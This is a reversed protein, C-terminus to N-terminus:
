FGSKSGIVRSQISRLLLIPVWQCGATISEYGPRWSDQGPGDAAAPAGASQAIPGTAAPEKFKKMAAALCPAMIHAQGAFSINTVSSSLRRFASEAEEKPPVSWRACANFFAICEM